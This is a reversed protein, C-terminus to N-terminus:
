NREKLDEKKSLSPRFFITAKTGKNSSEIKISSKEIDLIDRSVSLGLGTGKEFSKTTFFPEFLHKMEKESIGCGNDKLELVVVEEGKYFFQKGRPDKGQENDKIVIKRTKIVIEGGGSMSHESNILLNAIVQEVRDRDVCIKPLRKGRKFVVKINNDNFENKREKIAAEVIDNINEKKPSTKTIKSYNLLSGIIKDAKHASKKIINIAELCEFDADMDCATKELFSAGQLIVALPNRVEHAIGSAVQGLITLKEAHLLQEQAKQLNKYAEELNKQTKKLDSIDRVFSQIRKKNNQIIVKASISVPVLSKDRKKHTGEFVLSGKKLLRQLDQKYRKADEDCIFSSLYQGVIEGRKRGLLKCTNSNIDLIKGNLDHVYMADNMNILITEYNEALKKLNEEYIKQNTIDRFIGQLIERDGNKIISTKIQAFKKIGKKTEILVEKAEVYATKKRTAEALSKAHEKFIKKYNKTENKPHLFSQNKGIIDKKKWGVLKEAAKNCNVLTGTHRDAWFIADIADDFASKFINNNNKRM